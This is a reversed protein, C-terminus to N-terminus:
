GIGHQALTAKLKGHLQEVRQHFVDSGKNMDAVAKTFERVQTQLQNKKEVLEQVSLSPPHFDAINGEIQELDAWTMAQVRLGKVHSYLTTQEQYSQEMHTIAKDFLALLEKASFLDFVGTQHIQKIVVQGNGVLLTMDGNHLAAEMSKFYVRLRDKQPLAGEGEHANIRILLRECLESDFCSLPQNLQCYFEQVLLSPEAQVGSVDAMHLTELSTAPSLPLTREAESESTLTSTSEFSVQPELTPVPENVSPEVVPALSQRLAQEQEATLGNRQWLRVVREFMKAQPSTDVLLAGDGQSGFQQVMARTLYTCLTAIPQSLVRELAHDERDILVGLLAKSKHRETAGHGSLLLVSVILRARQQEVSDCQKWPPVVKDLERLTAADIAIPEGNEVAAALQNVSDLTALLRDLLESARPIGKRIWVQLRQYLLNDETFLWEVNAEQDIQKELDTLAQEVDELQEERHLWCEVLLSKRHAELMPSLTHGRLCQIVLDPSSAMLVRGMALLAQFHSHNPKLRTSLRVLLAEIAHIVAEDVVGTSLKCDALRKVIGQRTNSSCNQELMQLWLQYPNTVMPQDILQLCYQEMQVALVPGVASKLAPIHELLRAINFAPQPLPGLAMLRDCLGSIWRQNYESESALEHSLQQCIRVVADSKEGINLWRGAADLAAQNHQHRYHDYMKAILAESVPKSLRDGERRLELEAVSQQSRESDQSQILTILEQESYEALTREVRAAPGTIVPSSPRKETRSKPQETGNLTQKSSKKAKKARGNGQVPKKAGNKELEAQSPKDSVVTLMEEGLLERATSFGQPYHKEIVSLVSQKHPHMRFLQRWCIDVKQLCGFLKALKFSRRLEPNQNMALLLSFAVVPGASEELTQLEKIIAKSERASKAQQYEQLLRHVKMEPMTMLWKLDERATLSTMFEQDNDQWHLLFWMSPMHYLDVAQHLCSRVRATDVNQESVLCMGLLYFSLPDAAQSESTTSGKEFHAIAAAKDGKQLAHIGLSTRAAAYGHDAAEKLWSLWQNEPLSLSPWYGFAMAQGILLKIQIVLESPFNSFNNILCELHIRNQSYLNTILEYIMQEHPTMKDLYDDRVPIQLRHIHSLLMIVLFQRNEPHTMMKTYYRSVGTTPLRGRMGIIDTELTLRPYPDFSEDVVTPLACHTMMNVLALPDAVVQRCYSDDLWQELMPEFLHLSGLALAAQQMRQMERSKNPTQDTSQLRSLLVAFGHGSGLEAITTASDKVKQYRKGSEEPSDGDQELYRKRTLYYHCDVYWSLAKVQQPFHKLVRAFNISGVIFGSLFYDYQATLFAAERCGQITALTLYEIAESKYGLQHCAVGAMYLLRPMMPNAMGLETWSTKADNAEAHLIISTVLPRIATLMAQAQRANRPEHNGFKALLARALEEYDDPQEFSHLPELGAARAKDQISEVRRQLVMNQDKYKRLKQHHQQHLEDLPETGEDTGHDNVYILYDVFGDLGTDLAQTTNFQQASYLVRQAEDYEGRETLLEAYNSVEAADGTMWALLRQGRFRFEEDTSNAIQLKLARTFVERGPDLRLLFAETENMGNVVERWVQPLRKSNLPLLGHYHLELGRYCDRSTRMTASPQKIGQAYQQACRMSEAEGSILEVGDEATQLPLGAQLRQRYTHIRGRYSKLAQESYEPEGLLYCLKATDRLFAEEPMLGTAISTPYTKAEYYRGHRINFWFLARNNWPRGGERAEEGKFRAHALGTAAPNDRRMSWLVALLTQAQQFGRNCSLHATLCAQDFSGELYGAGQLAAQWFLIEPDESTLFGIVAQNKKSDYPNLDLLQMLTVIINYEQRGAYEYIEFLGEREPCGNVRVRDELVYSEVLEHDKRYKLSTELTAKAEVLYEMADLPMSRTQRVEWPRSLQGVLIAKALSAGPVSLARGQDALFLGEEIDIEFGLEGSLLAHILLSVGAPEGYKLAENVDKRLQQKQEDNLTINPYGESGKHGGAAEWLRDKMRRYLLQGLRNKATTVDADCARKLAEIAEDTRGERLHVLGLWYNAEKVGAAVAEELHKQSAEFEKNQLCAMANGMHVVRLYLVAFTTNERPDIKHKEYLQHIKALLRQHWQFVLDLLKPSCGNLARHTEVTFDAVRKALDISWKEEDALNQKQLLVDFHGILNTFQASLREQALKASAYEGDTTVSAESDSSDTSLHAPSEPEVQMSRQLLPTEAPMSAEAREDRPPTAPKVDHEPQRPSTVSTSISPSAGGGTKLQEM